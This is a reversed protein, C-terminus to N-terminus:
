FAILRQLPRSAQGLPAAQRRCHRTAPSAPKSAPVRPGWRLSWSFLVHEVGGDLGLQLGVQLLHAVRDLEDGREVVAVLRALFHPLQQRSMASSDSLTLRRAVFPSSARL